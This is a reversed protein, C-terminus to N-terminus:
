VDEAGNTAQPLLIGPSDFFVRGYFVRGLFCVIVTATPTMVGEEGVSVRVVAGAVVGYRYVDELTVPVM